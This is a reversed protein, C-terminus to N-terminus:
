EIIDEKRLAGSVAAHNAEQGVGLHTTGHILGKMFMENVKKEFHRSLLMTRYLSIKKENDLGNYASM